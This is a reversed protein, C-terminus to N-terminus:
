EYQGPKPELGRGRLQLPHQRHDEAPDLEPARRQIAYQAIVEEDCELALPLAALAAGDASVGRRELGAM